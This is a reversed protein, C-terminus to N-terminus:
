AFNRYLFTVIQGRTCIQDPSFQTESTGNTIKRDVAWDVASLIETSVDQFFSKTGTVPSGALKWLYEVAAARTCPADAHFYEHDSLLGAQYAWLAAYYFYSGPQIDPFPNYDVPGPSGAARWLFTIVQATSCTQNPSFINKDTGNTIKRDVAWSVADFCYSDPAVDIFVAAPPQSPYPTIQGDGPNINEPNEPTINEPNQPNDPNPNPNLNEPNKPDDPNLNNLNDPNKPDDPNPNSDSDPPIIIEPLELSDRTTEGRRSILAILNQDQQFCSIINGDNLYSKLVEVSGTNLHYSLINFATNFYLLDGYLFLGSTGTYGQFKYNPYLSRFLDPFYLIQAATDSSGDWLSLGKSDIFFWQNLAPVQVFPSVSSRWFYQDFRTSECSVNEGFIWDDKLYHEGNEASRMADTSLLFFIHRAYGPRDPMPDNWTADLHYWEGDIQVINWMHNISDSKVYSCPINLRELVAMMFLSYAECVGKKDRLFSYVDYNTYGSDYAFNLALQDNIFLVKQIDSWDPNVQAVLGSVGNEYLIKANDYDALVDERYRPTVQYDTGRSSWSFSGDLLFLDPTNFLATFVSRIEDESPRGYLDSNFKILQSGNRIEEHLFAELADLQAVEAARVPPATIMFAAACCFALLAALCSRSVRWINKINFNLFRMNMNMDICAGKRIAYIM